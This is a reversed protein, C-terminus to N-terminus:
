RAEVTAPVKGQWLVVTGPPYRRFEAESYVAPPLGLQRYFKTYEMAKQRARAKDDPALGSNDAGQANFEKVGEQLAQGLAILRTGYVDPDTWNSPKINIVKELRKQETVSGATSKLLAEILREAELEAKQRALTIDAAPDGLGPISSAFAIAAAPPGAIKFRDNWLSSGQQAADPRATGPATIKPGATPGATPVPEAGPSATPQKQVGQGGMSPTPAISLNLKKRAAEAEIVHTPLRGPIEVTYPIKTVPDTRNQYQPIGLKTIASQVLNTEYPSTEGRAYRDTMGPMNVVNWEWQGQGIISDGKKNVLKLREAHVRADAKLVEEFLSTKRKLLETNQAVVQDIDKEGQQLALAKIQRDIKDMAELNKGIATPLTKVAGALRSVFSGRLPRGSEDTNAAFGLARQGLEFLLQAQAMGKDQGLLTQYEPLRKQMQAQLTPVDTPSKNLLETASRKAASVLEPSYALLPNDFAAEPEVPTVGSEDSGVQFHQVYGGRAMQLPPPPGGPGPPMPPPPLGGPPPGPPLGGQPGMPPIGMGPPMAPPMPAQPGQAMPLTALGQQKALVPQLMALVSDPTEKAAKYGVMDALEDRRADLSRMDGRLHNMLIEPSDPRRDAVMEDRNDEEYSDREEPEEEVEDPADMMDKFGAMIGVDEFDAKGKQM